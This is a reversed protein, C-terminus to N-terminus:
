DGGCGGGCSSGCSSGGESATSGCGSGCGSGSSDRKHQADYDDQSVLGAALLVAPALSAPIVPEGVGKGQWDMDRYGVQGGVASWAFGKPMYLKRDLSFLRPVHSGALPLGEIARAAVLTNVLAEDMPVAMDGGEVHPIVRGFHTRCFRELHQPALREWAHWVSDAARSPLACPRGSRSVCDFFELLGEAARAFFFADRPIGKFELAASHRWHTYLNDPLDALPKRYRSRSYVLTTRFNILADFLMDFM